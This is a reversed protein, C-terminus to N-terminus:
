EASVSAASTARWGAPVTDERIMSAPRSRVGITTVHFMGGVEFNPAAGRRVLNGDDFSVFLRM